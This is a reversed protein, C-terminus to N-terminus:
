AAKTRQSLLKARSSGLHARVDDLHSKISFFLNSHQMPVDLLHIERDVSELEAELVTVDSPSACKQLSAEIGRLRRYMSGLRYEVLWRYLKPAYSFLPLVIVIVTALLAFIRKAYNTIWFPLYRDLFSPGNKHFDLANQAVPFEPDTVTPFDGARQLIGAGSHEQSLTQALLYVLEPHLTKRVLAAQTDAILTVDNAPIDREFDIVGQPLVLRTLFSYARTLAEAQTVSMLRITPDRLLAQVLPANLEIILVLVDAEGDKLAKAAAPSALPLMTTNDPNVGHAALIPDIVVRTAAPVAIRKGKFQTLRELTETGRYFIWIPAFGVRGLSILEPSQESNTLGGFLFAVDVGSNQDKILRINDLPGDTYHLNLKVHSRSLREQYSLAWREYSSGKFAMAITITSPPAPIFYALVLWVISAICLIAALGKLLHWRNFGLMFIEQAHFHIGATRHRNDHRQGNPPSAAPAILVTLM